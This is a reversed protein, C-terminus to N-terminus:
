EYSIAEVPTLKAARWAPYLGSLTAIVISGLLITVMSSIDLLVTGDMGSVFATFENQAIYPTVFYSAASGVLLGVIGGIFGYISSELLFIKFININSSGIAKLIGIDKKREYTATLMTNVIGFCATLIAVTAIIRLTTSVTNVVSLVSALLQKDSIVAVNAKDTILQAYLDIKSIDAVQVAVFSVRGETAYVEQATQLPIFLVSDDATGTAELIGSVKFEQGRLTVKSGPELAYNTAIDEGAVINFENSTKFYEGKSVTWKKLSLMEESKIGTVPVPNNEIATGVTLYPILKIGQIEELKAIEESPIADPLQTGSIVKVQEYACWGKPTVILNAGLDNAQKNIQSTLGSGLNILIVLSTIGLTIGSLTFFFRSKRGIINLWVLKFINL